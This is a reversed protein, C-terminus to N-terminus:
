AADAPRGHAREERLARYAHVQDRDFVWRRGQRAAGLEPALAQIRRRSCGLIAAAEDSTIRQDSSPLRPPRADADQRQAAAVTARALDRIWQASRGERVAAAAAYQVLLALRQADTGEAVVLQREARIM